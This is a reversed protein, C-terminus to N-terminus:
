IYDGSKVLGMRIFPSRAWNVARVIVFTAAVALLAHESMLGIAFDLTKVGNELVSGEGIIPIFVKLTRATSVKM